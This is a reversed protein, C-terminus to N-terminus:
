QEVPNFIYNNQGILFKSEGNFNWKIKYWHHPKSGYHRYAIECQGRGKNGEIDFTFEVIGDYMGNNSYPSPAIKINEGVDNLIAERSKIKEVAISYYPNLNHLAWNNREDMPANHPFKLSKGPMALFIM